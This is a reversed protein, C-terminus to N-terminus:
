ASFWALLRREFESENWNRVEFRPLLFPSNGRWLGEAVTTCASEFGAAKVIARTAESSNGFPYSFSPVPHGTMTELTLKSRKIEEQQVQPGHEPLLPHTMTHAGVSILGSQVLALLEPTRMPRHTERLGATRGAWEALRDLVVRRQSHQLPLLQQWVAYYFLARASTRRGSSMHALDGRYQEETYCEAAGLPGIPLNGNIQLTLEAPLTGPRLLLGELEDWWFEVNCDTYGAAVFVTAPVAYQALLPAAMNLNNAYGDDFTIALGCEPIDGRNRAAALDHLHIPATHRRIVTLHREFNAPTVSLNWPDVDVQTVRHYMLVVAHRCFRKLFKPVALRTSVLSPMM